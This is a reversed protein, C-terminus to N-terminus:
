HKRGAGMGRKPTGQTPVPTGREDTSAGQPTLDAVKMALARDVEPTRTDSTSNAYLEYARMFREPEHQILDCVKADDGFRERLARATESLTDPDLRLDQSHSSQALEADMWGTPKHLKSEIKAANEDSVGRKSKGTGKGMQWLYAASIDVMTALRVKGYEDLLAAIRQRRFAKIAQLKHTDAMTRADLLASDAPYGCSAITNPYCQAVMDRMSRDSYMVLVLSRCCNASAQPVSGAYRHCIAVPHRPRLALTSKAFLISAAVSPRTM